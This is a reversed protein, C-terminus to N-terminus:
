EQRYCSVDHDAPVGGDLGPRLAWVLNTERPYLDTLMFGGEQNTRRFGGVFSNLIGGRSGESAEFWGNGWRRTVDSEGKIRTWSFQPRSM